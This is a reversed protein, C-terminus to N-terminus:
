YDIKINKMCNEIDQPKTVKYSFIPVSKKISKEALFLNFTHKLGFQMKNDRHIKSLVSVGM